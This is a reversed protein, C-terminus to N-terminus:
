QQGKVIQEFWHKINELHQKGYLQLFKQTEDTELNSYVSLRSKAFGKTLSIKCDDTICKKWQEFTEPIM